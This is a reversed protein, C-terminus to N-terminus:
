QSYGGFKSKSVAGALKKKDITCDKVEEIREQLNETGEKNLDYKSM